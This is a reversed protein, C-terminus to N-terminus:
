PEFRESWKGQDKKLKVPTMPVPGGLGHTGLRKFHSDVEHGSTVTTAIQCAYISLRLHDNPAYANNSYSLYSPPLDGMKIFHEEIQNRGQFPKMKNNLKKSDKYIKRVTPWTIPEKTIKNRASHNVTTQNKGM